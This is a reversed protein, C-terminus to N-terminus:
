EEQAPIEVPKEDKAVDSSVVQPIVPSVLPSASVEKSPPVRIIEDESSSGGNDNNANSNEQVRVIKTSKRQVM